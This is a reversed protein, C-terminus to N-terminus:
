SQESMPNNKSGLFNSSAAQNLPGKIRVSFGTEAWNIALNITAREDFDLLHATSDARAAIDVSYGRAIM